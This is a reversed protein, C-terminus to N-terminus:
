NAYNFIEGQLFKTAVATWPQLQMIEAVSPPGDEAFIKIRM